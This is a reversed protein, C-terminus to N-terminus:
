TALGHNCHERLPMQHPVDSLQEGLFLVFREPRDTVPDAAHHTEPSRISPLCLM